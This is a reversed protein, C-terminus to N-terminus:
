LRGGISVKKQLKQTAEIYDEALTIATVLAVSGVNTDLVEDINTLKIGGIAVVPYHEKLTANWRRLNNLGILIAPKTQTPYVTGMAIYSPEIAIARLWEFESHTSVGLKLGAQQIQLLNSEGIDEQGLHVGYCQHKIALQWYDNIFLRAKYKEGLESAKAILRDLEEDATNKIRLQITKVNLKLLKELWEVSDVVPYLGLSLSDTKAFPQLDDTCLDTTVQPYHQLTLPWGFLAPHLDQAALTFDLQRSERINLNQQLYAIALVIADCARKGQRMFCAIAASLSGRVQENMLTSSVPLLKAQAIESLYLWQNHVSDALLLQKLGLQKIITYAELQNKSTKITSGSILEFSEPDTVVLDSLQFIDFLQKQKIPDAQLGKTTTLECIIFYQDAPLASIKELLADLSSLQQQDIIIRATDQYQQNISKQESFTDSSKLAQEIDDIKHANHSPWDISLNQEIVLESNKTDESKLM